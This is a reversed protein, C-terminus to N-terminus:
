TRRGSGSPPTAGSPRWREGGSRRSKKDSGGYRDPAASCAQVGGASPRRPVHPHAHTCGTGDVNKLFQKMRILGRPLPFDFPRNKRDVPSPLYFTMKQSKDSLPWSHGGVRSGAHRQSRHWGADGQVHVPFGSSTGQVHAPNRASRKPARAHLVGLGSFTRGDACRVCGRCNQHPVARKSSQDPDRQQACLTLYAFPM